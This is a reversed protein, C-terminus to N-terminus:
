PFDNPVSGKVTNNRGGNGTGADVFGDGSKAKNNELWCQDGDVQIGEGGNAKPKNDTLNVGTVGALVSIGHGSNNEAVASDVRTDSESILLGHSLNDSFHGGRVACGDGGGLFGFLNGRADCDELLAQAGDVQFGSDFDDEAVCRELGHGSGAVYFGAHLGGAAECDLLRHGKGRITFVGPEDEDGTGAAFAQCGDLVCHLSDDVVLFGNLGCANAICDELRHNAGALRFGVESMNSFDCSKALVGSADSAVVDIGVDDGTTGVLTDLDIRQCGGLVELAGGGDGHTGSEVTMGKLSVRTSNQLRFAPSGSLGRVLVTGTGSKKLSLTEQANTGTLSLFATEDILVSEVYTGPLITISDDADGNSLAADVAAQITTFSQGAGVKLNGAVAAPAILLVLAALATVRCANM